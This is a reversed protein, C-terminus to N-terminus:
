EQPVNKNVTKGNISIMFKKDCLVCVYSDGIKVKTRSSIYGPHNYDKIFDDALDCHPCKISLIKKIYTKTIKYIISVFYVVIASYIAWRPSLMQIYWAAIIMLYPAFLFFEKYTIEIPGIKM